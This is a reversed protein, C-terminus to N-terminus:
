CDDNIIYDAAMHEKKDSLSLATKIKTTINRLKSLISYSAKYVSKSNADAIIRSFYLLTVGLVVVSTFTSTTSVAGATLLAGAGLNAISVNNSNKKAEFLEFDENEINKTKPPSSANGAIMKVKKQPIDEIQMPHEYIEYEFSKLEPPSLAKISENLKLSKQVELLRSKENSINTLWNQSQANSTKVVRIGFVGEKLYNRIFVLTDPSVPAREEGLNDYAFVRSFETNLDENLCHTFALFTPYPRQRNRELYRSSNYGQEILQPMVSSFEFLNKTIPRSGIKRALAKLNKNEFYDFSNSNCSEM